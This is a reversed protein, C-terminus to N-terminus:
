VNDMVFCSLIRIYHIYFLYPLPGTLYECLCVYECVFQWFVCKVQSFDVYDCSRFHPRQVGGGGGVEEREGREGSTQM